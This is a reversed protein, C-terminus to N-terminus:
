NADMPHIFKIRATVATCNKYSLIFNVILCSHKLLTGSKPWELLIVFLYNTYSTWNFDCFILTVWVPLFRAMSVHCSFIAKKGGGLACTFTTTRPTLASLVTATRCLLFSTFLWDVHGWLHIYNLLVARKNFFNQLHWIPSFNISM